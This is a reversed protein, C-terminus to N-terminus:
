NATLRQSLDNIAAEAAVRARADALWDAMASQVDEPLNDIENLAESLDGDRVAAEARSLVADPDSGERPQVSRAGLQRRLFSTVGNDYEGDLGAARASALADRAADPFRSQLNSLTVVGEQAAATLPQPLDAVGANELDIIVEAFGSGTGIAAIVKSVGAQIAAAQAAAATAEEISQANELLGEIESRQQQLAAQMQALDAAYAASDAGDGIAGTAAPRNELVALREEIANLTETFQAVEGEIGSLDVAPAEASELAAIQGAQKDLATRIDGGESRFGLLNAESAMFGLVAAIVGGLVLPWFVSGGQKQPTTSSSQQTATPKSQAAAATPAADKATSEPKTEIKASTTAPGTATPTKKEEPKDSVKLDTTSAVKKADSVKEVAVKSTAQASAASTKPNTGAANSTAGKVTEKSSPAKIEPTAPVTKESTAVVKAPADKLTQPKSSDKSGTNKARAM